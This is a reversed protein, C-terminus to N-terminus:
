PKNEKRPKRAARKKKGASPSAEAAAPTEETKTAQNVVWRVADQAKQMAERRRLPSGPTTSSVAQKVWKQLLAETDNLCGIASPVSDCTAQFWSASQRQLLSECYSGYASLAARLAHVKADEKYLANAVAHGRPPDDWSKTRASTTRHIINQLHDVFSLHETAGSFQPVFFPLADKYLQQNSSVLVIIWDAADLELAGRRVLRWASAHNELSDDPSSASPSFSKGKSGKVSFRHPDQEWGKGGEPRKWGPRFHISCILLPVNRGCLLCKGLRLNHIERSDPPLLLVRRTRWTLGKLPGLPTEESAGEWVALDGQVSTESPINALLMRLLTFDQVLHYAPTNGNPAATMSQGAGATGASAYASWRVLAVGCCAPCLGSKHDRVHCFHIVNSGSPVEHLLNTAPTSNSDKISRDQLFPTEEHFLDFAPNPLELTGLRNEANFWDDPIGKINPDDLRARDDASLNPRCWLLVALLFRLLAVNDMPNGAAIQRILHADKLAKRIGVRRWHGNAYLVPIWDEQILNFCM